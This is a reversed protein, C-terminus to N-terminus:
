RLPWRPTAGIARADYDDRVTAPLLKVLVHLLLPLLVLDDLIGLMPLALNLPDLAYFLLLVTIPLLWIPRHPHRLAFWLLRLDQGGLRWWRFLRIM